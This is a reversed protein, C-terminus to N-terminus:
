LITISGFEGDGEREIMPKKRQNVPEQLVQLLKTAVVYEMPYYLFINPPVTTNLIKDPHAV